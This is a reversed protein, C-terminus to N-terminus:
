KRAAAVWTVGQLDVKGGPSLKGVAAAIEAEAAVRQEPTLKELMSAIPGAMEHTLRWYDAFNDFEMLSLPVAELVVDKFGAEVLVGELRKPDAYAFIGLAGPPPKPVNAHKMMIGAPIAAWPNKEPAAWCAVAIRGGAKLARHAARLCGVADPMFMIGWRITVADFSAAPVDLAEGDVRRFEVNTLGAAAAKERATALMLEVFDTGLVHGTPGVRKAAPIAPEGTGSAIDLVRSGVGVGALDLMKEAAPAAGKVFVADHKRWNPAVGTWSQHQMEKPSPQTELM